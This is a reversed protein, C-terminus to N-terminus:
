SICTYDISFLLQKKVKRRIRGNYTILISRIISKNKMKQHDAACYLSTWKSISLCVSSHLQGISKFFFFGKQTKNFIHFFFCFFSIKSMGADMLRLDSTISLFLWFFFWCFSICLIKM